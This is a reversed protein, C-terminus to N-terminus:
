RYFRITIKEKESFIDPSFLSQPLLISLVHSSTFFWFNFSDYFFTEILNVFSIPHSIFQSYLFFVRHFLWTQFLSFIFWIVALFIFVYKKLKTQKNTNFASHLIRSKLMLFSSVCKFMTSLSTFVLFDFSFLSCYCSALLIMYILSILLKYMLGFTLHLNSTFRSFILGLLTEAGM